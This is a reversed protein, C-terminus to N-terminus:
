RKTRHNEENQKDARNLRENPEIVRLPKDTSAAPQPTPNSIELNRNGAITANKKPRSDSCLKTVLQNFAKVIMLRELAFEKERVQLAAMRELVRELEREIELLERETDPTLNKVNNEGGYDNQDTNTLPKPQQCRASNSLITTSLLAIALTMLRM